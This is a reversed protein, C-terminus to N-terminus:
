KVGTGLGLRKRVAQLSELAQDIEQETNAATISFRLLGEDFPVIPFIAPTILIGYEWLIKCAEVVQTTNGIVVGVIPFFNENVVEFGMAKAETVLKCTLQYVQKRWEEGETQNLRLGAIASALSAVPSPGSFIFTSATRFKNKIAEDTCTIFAGFSSYSKSLGAVYIMRDEKYDLGFHNVIGNGKYGYPMEPSPNEGVIGLGHADDMYVYANCTKALEAFEPLPPYNGSMSYVGDIAIIQTRELPYQALKNKLDAVDNHKFDIVEAGNTQALRCAEYISRHASIDKFIVGDYSALVPIVGTHLLTVAPFVLVSPAGMLEALAQELEEYIGPSAVARTWSPHVGWKELAPPIAKIVEPHLDLGLYNCSAFDYVWRGDIKLKRQQQDTVIAHIQPVEAAADHFDSQEDNENDQEHSTGAPSIDAMQGDSLAADTAALNDLLISALNHINDARILREIPIRVKLERDIQAILETSM